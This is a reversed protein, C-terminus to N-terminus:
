LNILYLNQAVFSASVRELQRRVRFAQVCWHFPNDAATDHVFQGSTKSYWGRELDQQDEPEAGYMRIWRYAKHRLDKYEQKRALFRRVDQPDNFRNNYLDWTQSLKELAEEVDKLGQITSEVSM